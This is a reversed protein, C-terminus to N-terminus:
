DVFLQAARSLDLALQAQQQPNTDLSAGPYPVNLFDCLAAYDVDNRFDSPIIVEYPDAWLAPDFPRHQWLACHVTGAIHQSHIYRLADLAMIRLRTRIRLGFLVSGCDTSSTRLLDDLPRAGLQLTDAIFTLVEYSLQGPAAAYDSVGVFVENGHQNLITCTSLTGALPLHHANEERAERKAAIEKAVSEPKSSRTAQVETLFGEWNDRRCTTIGLFLRTKSM